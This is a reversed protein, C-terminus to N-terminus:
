ESHRFSFPFDYKLGLRVFIEFSGYDSLINACKDQNLRTFGTYDRDLYREMQPILPVEGTHPKGCFCMLRPLGEAINGWLAEALRPEDMTLFVYSAAIISGGRYALMLDNEHILDWTARNERHDPVAWIYCRGDPYYHRLSEARVADRVSGLVVELEYGKEAAVGSRAKAADDIAFVFVDAM